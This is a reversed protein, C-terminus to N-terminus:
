AGAEMKRMIDRRRREMRRANEPSSHDYGMLHLISHMILEKMKAELSVGEERADALAQRAGIVIDGILLPEGPGPDDEMPFSLVDTPRRRGRWKENLSQIRRDGVLLISLEADRWERTAELVSKAFGRLPGPRIRVRTRNEIHVSAM